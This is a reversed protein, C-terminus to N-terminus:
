DALARLAPVDGQADLAVHGLGANAHHVVPRPHRRVHQLSDEVRPERGLLAARPEAQGDGLLEDRVGPSPDLTLALDALTRGEENAQRDNRGSSVIGSFGPTM